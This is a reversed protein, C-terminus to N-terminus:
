DKGHFFICAASVVETLDLFISEKHLLQDDIQQITQRLLSQMEVVTHADFIRDSYRLQPFHTSRASNTRQEHSRSISRCQWARM